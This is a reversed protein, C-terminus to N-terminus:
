VSVPSFRCVALHLSLSLGDSLLSCFIDHVLLPLSVVAEWIILYGQDYIPLAEPWEPTSAPPQCPIRAELLKQIDLLSRRLAFTTQHNHVTKNFSM